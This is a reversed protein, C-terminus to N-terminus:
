RYLEGGEPTGGEALTELAAWDLIKIEGRKGSLVIRRDRFASLTRSVTEATTGLYDAIDAWRMPIEVVEIRMETAGAQRRAMTLLFTAVREEVSRHALMLMRDQAETLEDAMQALFLRRVGPAEEFLRELAGRPWARLSCHTVTEAGYGYVAGLNFTVGMFDGPYLFGTIQRRGDPLLKFVSAVGQQVSYISAAPDGEIIIQQGAALNIARSIENLRAVINGDLAELRRRLASRTMNETGTPM